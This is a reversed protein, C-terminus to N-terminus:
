FFFTIPGLDVLKRRANHLTSPRPTSFRQQLQRITKLLFYFSQHKPPSLFRQFESFNLAFISFFIKRKYPVSCTAYHGKIKLDANHFPLMVIGLSRYKQLFKLASECTKRRKSLLHFTLSFM